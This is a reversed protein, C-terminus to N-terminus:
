LAQNSKLLLKPPKRRLKYSWSPGQLTTNGEWAKGGRRSEGVAKRVEGPGEQGKWGRGSSGVRKWLKWWSRGAEARLRPAIAWVKSCHGLIGVTQKPGFPM